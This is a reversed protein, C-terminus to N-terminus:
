TAGEDGNQSLPSGAMEGADATSSGSSGAGDEALREQEAEFVARTRSFAAYQRVEGQPSTGAAM